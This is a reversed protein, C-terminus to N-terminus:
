NESKGIEMKQEQLNFAFQLSQLQGPTLTYTVPQAAAVVLLQAPAAVVPQAPAAVMPQATIVSAMTPAAVPETPLQSPQDPYKVEPPSPAPM